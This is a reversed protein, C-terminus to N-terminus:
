AEEYYQRIWYEMLAAVGKNPMGSIAFVVAENVDMGMERCGRAAARVAAKHQVFNERGTILEMQDDPYAM